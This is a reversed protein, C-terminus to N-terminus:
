GQESYFRCQYFYQRYNLKSVMSILVLQGSFQKITLEHNRSIERLVFKFIQFLVPTM